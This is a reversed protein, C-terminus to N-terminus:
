LRALKGYNKIEEDRSGQESLVYITRKPLSGLPETVSGFYGDTLIIMVGPKIKNEALYRYVCNIDTGGTHKPKCKFLKENNRINKYVGDVKTHWYAIHFVCHFESAIRYLQTLFHGLEENNISGSVDIFAWIDGLEDDTKGVGPVIMDMHIYKREPTLYSSEEDLREEMFECLLKNWPLKKSATMIKLERPYYGGIGLGRRKATDRILEKIDAECSLAEAEDLANSMDLDDAVGDVVMGKYKTKDAARKKKNENVLINYFEEASQDRYYEKLFCGVPPKEFAVGNNDLDWRMRDLLGNVVYDCAINWLKPYREGKRKWHLLLIHMVEHMLVYNRQGENLTKFFEPNYRVNRGNTCATPITEDEIFTVRMLIDGYFPMLKMMDMKFRQFEQKMRDPTERNLHNKIKNLIGLPKAMKEIM